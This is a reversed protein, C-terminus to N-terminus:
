QFFFFFFFVPRSRITACQQWRWNIDYLKASNSETYQGLAAGVRYMFSGRGAVTDFNSGDLIRPNALTQGEVLFQVKAEGKSVPHRLEPM